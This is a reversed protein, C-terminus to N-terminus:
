ELLIVLAYEGEAGVGNTDVSIYYTGPPLPGSIEQEHAKVCSGATVGTLVHLDVNVANRDFLQARVTVKDKVDLRYFREPGSADVAGDCTGGYNDISDSPSDATSRLDVFPLSPIRIPDAATGTGLLMPGPDDLSPAVDVVVQRARDLGRLSELNHVNYGFQLAAESFFCPRNEMASVFVSLDVGDVALGTMPLKSLALHLDILPIQRGQAVARIVGNYQPVVLSYNSREPITSLVPVVGSASMADVANLLNDAFVYLADPGAKELDHTGTLLHAFRPAVATIEAGIPTPMGGVLLDSNWGTMAAASVHTWPNSADMLMVARFHGITAVLSPEAPLGEIALDDALCQLFNPSASITGGVRTFVGPNQDATTAIARMADAVAVSIPSHVRDFPYLEAHPLDDGPPVEGTSSEGGSSSSEGGGSSSSEASGSTTDTTTTTTAPETASASPDTATNATGTGTATVTGGGSDDLGVGRACAPALLLVLTTLTMPSGRGKAGFEM